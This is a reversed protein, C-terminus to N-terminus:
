ALVRRKHVVANILLGATMWSLGVGLALWKMRMLVALLAPIGVFAALVHGRLNRSDRKVKFLVVVSTVVAIATTLPGFGVISTLTDIQSAFHLALAISIAGSTLLAIPPEGYRRHLAAFPRPRDDCLVRAHLVRSVRTVTAMTISTTISISISIAFVLALAERTTETRAAPAWPPSPHHRGGDSIRQQQWRVPGTPVKRTGM